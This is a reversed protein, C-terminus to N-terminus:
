ARELQRDAGHEVLYGAIGAPTPELMLEEVDLLVGVEGEVSALLEANALSDGGLRFFNSETKVQHQPVQLSVAFFQAVRWTLLSMRAYRDADTGAAPRPRPATVAAPATVVSPPVGVPTSTITPAPAPAPAPTPVPTAVPAVPAPVVTAARVTPMPTTVSPAEHSIKGNSTLPLEDVFEFKSPIMGGHLHGALHERLAGEDVADGVIVAELHGDREIVSCLLVGPVNAIVREVEDLEVRQGRIKTQRDRRGIYELTGDDRWRCIDGTRYLLTGADDYPDPAFRDEMLDPRGVYRGVGVGGICLEGDAGIPVPRMDPDLVYVRKNPVPRGIPPDGASEGCEHWTAWVATEAPGYLNLFRREPTRWRRVVAGPLREGAAAAVRLDPLDDGSLVAWVSPTLTTVSIRRDRLTRMLPPGVMLQASPVFVLTAGCLVAMMVDFVCGDFNPSFFQLVRDSPRIGFIRRQATHLNVVAEHSIAIAKPTGTSGSTFVTYATNGPHVGTRPATAAREPGVTILDVPLALEALRTATAADTMVWRASVEALMARLRQPPCTPDSLLFAGGAKGIGVISILMDVSREMVVAVVSEPEVGRTRLTRALANAREDIERYTYAVGDDEAAVADPAISARYEFVTHWRQRPGLPVASDNWDVLQTHETTVPAPDPAPTEDATRAAPGVLAYAHALCRTNVHPGWELAGPGTAMRYDPYRELFGLIAWRAVREAYPAGVCYHRGMGFGLHRGEQRAINLTMPDTFRRPDLNVATLLVILPQGARIAAGHFDMDATALRALYQSSGNLRMFEDIASDILEPADLLERRQEPHDALLVLGGSVLHTLTQYGGAAFVVANAAVTDLGYATDRDSPRAKGHLDKVMSSIIDDGPSELRHAAVERFAAMAEDLIPLVDRDRLNPLTSLSGILRGYADAWRVLETPRDTMGLLSGVLAVHLKEALDTVLDVSGDTTLTDLVADAIARMADDRERVRGPAFQERVAGRIDSHDPPDMFLMQEVLMGGVAAFETLGRKALAASSHSRDSSFRKHDSLIEVAEAYGTCIWAKGVEDYFLPGLEAIAAVYTLPNAIVEPRNLNHIGHRAHDYRSSEVTTTSGSERM